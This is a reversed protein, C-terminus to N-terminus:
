HTRCGTRNGSGSSTSALARRQENTEDLIDRLESRANVNLGMEAGSQEVFRQLIQRELARRNASQLDSRPPGGRRGQAEIGAPALAALLAIIMIQKM